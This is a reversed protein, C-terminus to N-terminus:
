ASARGGPRLGHGSGRSPRNHRRRAARQGRGEARQGRFGAKQERNRERQGGRQRRIEPTQEEERERWRDREQTGEEKGEGREERGAIVPPRRCSAAAAPGVGPDSRQGCGRAQVPTPRAAAALRRHSAPSAGPGLSRPRWSAPSGLRRRSQGEAAGGEGKLLRKLLSPSPTDACHCFERRRALRAPQRRDGRDHLHDAAHRAHDPHGDHQRPPCSGAFRQTTNAVLRQLTDVRQLLDVRQLSKM